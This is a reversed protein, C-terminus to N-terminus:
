LRGAADPHEAPQAERMAQDLMHLQEQAVVRQLGLRGGALAPAAQCTLRGLGDLVEEFQPAALDCGPALARGCLSEQVLREFGDFGEALGLALRPRARREREVPAGHHFVQAAPWARLDPVREGKELLLHRPVGLEVGRLRQASSEVGPLRRFLMLALPEPSIM